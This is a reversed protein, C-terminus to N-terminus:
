TGSWASSSPGPTWRGRLRLDSGTETVYVEHKELTSTGLRVAAWRRDAVARERTWRRAPTRRRRSPEHRRSQQSSVDRAAGRDRPKMGLGTTSTMLLARGRETEVVVSRATSDNEPQEASASAPSSRTSCSPEGQAAAQGACGKSGPRDRGLELRGSCSTSSLGEQWLVAYGDVDGYRGAPACADADPSCYM